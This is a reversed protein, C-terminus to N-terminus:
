LEAQRLRDTLVDTMVFFFTKNSPARTIGPFYTHWVASGGQKWGSRIADRLNKELREYDTNNVLCIQDYLEKTLNQDRRLSLLTLGVQLHPYGSLHRHICVEDLLKGAIEMRRWPLHPGPGATDALDRIREAATRVQCSKMMAYDVTLDTMSFEIYDSRNRILVMIKPPNPLALAHRILDIGDMSELVLETALIDAKRATLLGLAIRGDFCCEVQFDRCLALALGTRFEENPDAIVVTKPEM